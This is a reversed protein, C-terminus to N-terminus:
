KCGIRKTSVILDDVLVETAVVSGSVDIGFQVRDLGPDRATITGNPASLKLVDDIYLAASGNTNTKSLSM